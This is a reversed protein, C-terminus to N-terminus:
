SPDPTPACRPSRPSRGSSYLLPPLFVVLVLDPNLAPSPVGPLAGMLLGGLVLAIPYPTNTRSALGALVTIAALLSIIVNADIV